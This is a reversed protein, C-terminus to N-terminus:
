KRKGQIFDLYNYVGDKVGDEGTLDDPSLTHVCGANCEYSWIAFSSTKEVQSLTGAYAGEFPNVTWNSTNKEKAIGMNVYDTGGINHIWQAYKYDDKDEGCGGITAFITNIVTKVQGSFSSGDSKTVWNYQRTDGSFTITAVAKEDIYLSSGLVTGSGTTSKYGGRRQITTMDIFDISMTASNAYLNAKAGGDLVSNQLTVTGGNVRIPSSFGSVYSDKLTATGTMIIGSAINKGNGNSSGKNIGASTWAAPYVPGNIVLKEITGSSISILKGNYYDGGYTTSTFQTADIIHYNGNIYTVAKVYNTNTSNDVNVEGFAIDALLCIKGSATKWQEVTAVNYAGSIVKVTLERPEGGDSIAFKFEGATQPTIEWETWAGNKSLAFPTPTSSTSGINAWTVVVDGPTGNDLAFLTGLKIPQVTGVTFVIGYKSVDANSAIKFASGSKKFTIDYKVSMTNGNEDTGKSAVIISVTFQSPATNKVKLVSGDLTVNTDDSLTIVYENSMEVDCTLNPELTVDADIAWTDGEKYDFTAKYSAFGNDNYPDGAEGGVTVNTLSRVYVKELTVTYIVNQAKVTITANADLTSKDIVLTNSKTTNEGVTWEATRSVSSSNEDIFNSATLTISGNFDSTYHLTIGDNYTHLDYKKNANATDATVTFSQLDVSYETDFTEDTGLKTLVGDKFAFRAGNSLELVCNFADSAVFSGVDSEAVNAFITASGEWLDNTDVQTYGLFSGTGIQTVTEPLYIELVSKNNDAPIKDPGITETGYPVYVYLVDESGDELFFVGSANAIATNKLKAELTAALGSESEYGTLVALQTGYDANGAISDFTKLLSVIGGESGAQDMLFYQKEGEDTDLVLSRPSSPSFTLEVSEGATAIVGDGNIVTLNEYKAVVVQKNEVDYWFHYGYKGSKPSLTSYYDTVLTRNGEGDEEWEGYYENIANRLDSESEIAGNDVEWLALQINLSAAFQVDTSHNAKQIVGSITPILVTALIAIVAIVIVMEVVTFAKRQKLNKM